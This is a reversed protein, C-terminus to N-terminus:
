RRAAGVGHRAALARQLRRPVLFNAAHVLLDVRSPRHHRVAARLLPVFAARDGERAAVASAHTLLFSARARPTLLPAAEELWRHSARWGEGAATTLRSRGDEIHWVVLPARGPPFEVAAGPQAAARLLWDPDEHRRLERRFPVALALERPALITSTQVLGEGTFPSRRLFLYESLEEGAAPARAPWLFEAGAPRALLRCSVIPLEHPSARAAALQAALKGPLWEDDDDLFAVWEGAARRVGENRAEASGLREAPVIVRLRPEALAALARETEGDRGDVVVVVELPPPEQALASAVARRVLEPRLHTPIVASVSATM